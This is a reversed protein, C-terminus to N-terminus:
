DHLVVNLLGNNVTLADNGAYDIFGLTRFKNMFHCVRSRTAGVMQALHEQNIGPHVTETRSEKGFHALLLLIRALRKESSNFLQDALDEEFRINRSLLHTMFLESIRHDEHLLRLMLLKEIRYLTCDTVAVASTIRLPQGALCGEGFFENDGLISVIAENGHRSTVVLKVEGQNLYWVSDATDGQAFIARDPSFELVTKGRSIGALFAAWDVAQAKQDAAPLTPKGKGGPLVGKPHTKHPTMVVEGGRKRKSLSGRRQYVVSSLPESVRRDSTVDIKFWWESPNWSPPPVEVSHRLAGDAKHATSRM